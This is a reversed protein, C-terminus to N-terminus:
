DRVLRRRIAESMAETRSAVELKAYLRTLHTTVTRQSIFLEEAIAANSKGAVLLALVDRERATLGADSAPDPTDTGAPQDHIRAIRMALEIADSPTMGAGETMLRAHHQPEIRSRVANELEEADLFYTQRNDIGITAAIARSAAALKAADDVHRRELALDGAILLLHALVDPRSHPPTTHPLLSQELQSGAEDFRGTRLYLSTRSAHILPMVGPRERRLAPEAEALLREAEAYSGHEILQEALQSKFMSTGVANNNATTTAIAMKQYREGEAADGNRWNLSGVLNQVNAIHRPNGLGTFITLSRRAHDLATPLDDALSAMIASKFYFDAQIEPAALDVWPLVKRSWTLADRMQGVELWFSIMTAVMGVALVHERYELLRSLVTTFTATDPQYRLTWAKLEPRGTGWTERPTDIVLRAYWLAHARRISDTEGSAALYEEAFERITQLMRIRPGTGPRQDIRVLSHDVLEALLDDVQGGLDGDENCIPEVADYPMGNEAVALRRFLVQEGPTLLDHSWELTARLTSHREPADRPGGKLVDLPGTLRDRLDPPALFRTRAAALEIALPLGDVMRCIDDIAAITEPTLELDPRVAQARDVFLVTAAALEGPGTSRLPLPDLPFVHEGSLRLVVRSTALIVLDPCATLLPVLVTLHEAVQEVNDLILIMRGSAAIAATIQDLLTRRESARVDAIRGIAPLIDDPTTVNALPVFRIDPFSDGIDQAIQLALRTKGVGGPGLLTVLRVDPQLLLARLRAREEERGIMSTAPVPFRQNNVITQM